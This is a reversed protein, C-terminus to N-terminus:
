GSLFMVLCYRRSLSFYGHGALINGELLHREVFFLLHQNSLHFGTFPLRVRVKETCLCEYFDDRCEFRGRIFKIPRM